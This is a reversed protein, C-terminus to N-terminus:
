KNIYKTKSKISSKTKYPLTYLVWFRIGMNGYLSYSTQMSFDYFTDIEYIRPTGIRIMYKTTRMNGNFKGDVILLISPITNKKRGTQTYSFLILYIFRGLPFHKKNQKILLAVAKSFFKATGFIQFTIILSRVFLWM